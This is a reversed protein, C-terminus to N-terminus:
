IQFGYRVNRRHMACTKQAACPIGRCRNMTYRAGTQADGRTREAMEDSPNAKTAIAGKRLVASKAQPFFRDAVRNGKRAVSLM